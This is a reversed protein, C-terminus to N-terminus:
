PLGLKSVFNKTALSFELPSKFPRNCVITLGSPLLACQSAMSAWVPCNNFPVVMVISIALRSPQSLLFPEFHCVIGSSIIFYLACLKKMFSNKGSTFYPSLVDSSASSITVNSGLSCDFVDGFALRFSSKLLESFGFLETPAFFECVSYM